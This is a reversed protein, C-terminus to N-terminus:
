VLQAIGAGAGCKYSFYTRPRIWMQLPGSIHAYTCAMYIKMGKEEKFCLYNQKYTENKFLLLSKECNASAEV